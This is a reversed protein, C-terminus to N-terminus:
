EILKGARSLMEAVDHMDLSELTKRTQLGTAKDWGQVEYFDDLMKNWKDPECLSGKYPGSKTPEEMYRRPPLDDKRAMETHLTNFAKELNRSQQGVEMLQDESLDLGAVANLLAAYDEADPTGPVEYSLWVNYGDLRIM